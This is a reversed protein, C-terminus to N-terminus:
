LSKVGEAEMREKISKGGGVTKDLFESLNQIASVSEKVWEIALKNAQGAEIYFSLLRDLWIRKDPNQLSQCFERYSMLRGEERLYMDIGISPQTVYFVGLDRLFGLSVKVLLTFLRTDDNGLRLYPLDDRVKRIHHFLCATLYCSSILYCGPGNFWDANQESVHQADAVFLLAECKKGKDPDVRGQIERLRFYNEVLHLRLPNLFERNIRDREEIERAKSTLFYSIVAVSLSTLAAIITTPVFEM